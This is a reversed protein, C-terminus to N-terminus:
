KDCFHWPINGLDKPVGGGGLGWNMMSKLVKSFGKLGLGQKLGCLKIEQPGLTKLNM